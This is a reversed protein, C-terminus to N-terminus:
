EGFYDAIKTFDAAVAAPDYVGAFVARIRGQPDAVLLSASHDVAYDESGEPPAHRQYYINLQSTVKEIEAESGTVGLFEPGFYSVFGKLQEPTDRAPDVSVFLVRTRAQLKPRAALRNYVRSLMALTTPCVDPCHTYGFFLFDWQARLNDATFPQGDQDILKFPEVTWPEPLVTASLNELTERQYLTGLQLGIYFMLVALLAIAIKFTWSRPPRRRMSM